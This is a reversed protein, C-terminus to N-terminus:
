PDRWADALALAAPKPDGHIDLISTNAACPHCDHGCWLLIGGLASASRARGCPSRLAEAQRTQSWEVYEELTEPARGKEAAFADAEIWWTLPRRWVPNEPGVPMPDHPGAFERIM